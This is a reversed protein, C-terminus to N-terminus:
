CPRGPRAVSDATGDERHKERRRKTCSDESCRRDGQGRCHEIARRSRKRTKIERGARRRNGGM